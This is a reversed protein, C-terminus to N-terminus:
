PTQRAPFSRSNSRMAALLAARPAAVRPIGMRELEKVVPKVAMAAAMDWRGFVDCQRRLRDERRKEDVM